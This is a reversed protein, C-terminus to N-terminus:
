VIDGPVHLTSEFLLRTLRATREGHQQVLAERLQFALTAHVRRVSPPLAEGERLAHPIARSLRLFGKESLVAQDLADYAITSEFRLYGEEALWLLAGLCAQHRKSPLGFEDPEERGILDEVYLAMKRPFAQYLMLLGSAADKYFDDIQLDM